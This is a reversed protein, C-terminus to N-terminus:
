NCPFLADIVNNLIDAKTSWQVCFTMCTKSGCSPSYFSLIKMKPDIGKLGVRKHGFPLYFPYSHEILRPILSHSATWRWM